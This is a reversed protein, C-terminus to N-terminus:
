ENEEIWQSYTRSAWLEPKIGNVAWFTTERMPSQHLQMHHKHCLPVAWQDGTKLALARHQVYQLHHAEARDGCILCPKERIFKLYKSSRLRNPSGM